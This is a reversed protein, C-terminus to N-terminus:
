ATYLVEVWEYLSNAANQSKQLYITLNHTSYVSEYVPKIKDSTLVYMM